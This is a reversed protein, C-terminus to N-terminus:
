YTLFLVGLASFATAHTAMKNEETKLMKMRKTNL